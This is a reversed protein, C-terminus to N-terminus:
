KAIIAFGEIEKILPLIREDTAPTNLAEEDSINKNWYEQNRKVSISIVSGELSVGAFLGETMSYSYIAAKAKSDTAAEGRRGIPGAAIGVDAGLKIKSKLFADAGKSTNVVLVLAIKEAGIQLGFSGGGINYFSPGHWKGDRKRLILGEGYEGGVVLGAKIMSPVFAIAHADEIVKAMNMSDNQSKMTQLVKVSDNILSTPLSAHATSSFVTLFTFLVLLISIAIQMDM